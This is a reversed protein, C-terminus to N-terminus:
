NNNATPLNNALAEVAIARPKVTASELRANKWRGGEITGGNSLQLLAQLRLWLRLILRVTHLILARKRWKLGRAATRVCVHM